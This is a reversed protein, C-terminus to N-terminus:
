KCFIGTRFQAKQCFRGVFVLRTAFSHHCKKLFLGKLFLNASFSGQCLPCVVHLWGVHMWTRTMLTAVASLNIQHSMVENVCQYNHFSCITSVRSDYGVSPVRRCLINRVTKQQLLNECIVRLELVQSLWTIMILSITPSTESIELARAAALPTRWSHCM